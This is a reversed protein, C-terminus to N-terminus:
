GPIGYRDQLRAMRFLAKGYGNALGAKWKAITEKGVIKISVHVVPYPNRWKGSFREGDFHRFQGQGAPYGYSWEGEYVSGDRYTMKGQGDRFGGRWQGEYDAGSRYIYRRVERSEPLKQGKRLTEFLESCCFYERFRRAEKHIQAYQVRM